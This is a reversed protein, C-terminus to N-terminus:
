VVWNLTFQYVNTTKYSYRLFSRRNPVGVFGKVADSPKLIPCSARPMLRGGPVLEVRSSGDAHRRDCENLLVHPWQQGTISGSAAFEHESLKFLGRIRRHEIM